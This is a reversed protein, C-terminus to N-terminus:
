AQLILRLGALGYFSYALGLLNGKNALDWRVERLAQGVPVANPGIVRAYIQEAIEAAVPLSVSVETGLIGNAGMANFVSTYSVVRGPRLDSTHCGNIFVLPANNKWAHPDPGTPTPDNLWEALTSDAYIKHADGTGPGISLYDGSADREGHCLFYLIEPSRMMARAQEWEVAPDAPDLHLGLQSLSALHRDIHAQDLDPDQTRGVALRPPGSVSVVSRTDRRNRRAADLGHRSLPHELIHKLGWFGYPCITNTRHWEEHAHPCRTLRHEPDSGRVGEPTWEGVVPCVKVDADVLPIDYVLAWPFVYQVPAARAVQILSSAALVEALSRQWMAGTCDSGEAQRVDNFATRWLTRGLRALRNLDYIFQERTKGNERSFGWVTEGGRERKTLGSDGNEWEYMCGWLEERSQELLQTVADEDYDTWAEPVCSVAPLADGDTRHKVVIRHDGEDSGNMMLSVAVPVADADGLRVARLRFREDLAQFTGTLVFDVDVVADEGSAVGAEPAVAVRVAASQVLNTEYYLCLRGSIRRPADSDPNWEATRFRLALWGPAEPTEGDLVPASRGNRRPVWMQGTVLPPEIDGSALTVDILYGEAEPPLSETPFTKKGTVLSEALPPGVDVLLAVDRGAGLAEGSALDGREDDHFVANLVRPGRPTTRESGGRVPTDFSVPPVGLADLEQLAVAMPLVGSTKHDWERRAPDFGSRAQDM